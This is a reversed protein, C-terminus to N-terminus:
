KGIEERVYEPLNKNKLREEIEQVDDSRGGSRSFTPNKKPVTVTKFM